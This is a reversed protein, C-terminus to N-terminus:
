PSLDLFSYLKSNPIFKNSEINYTHFYLGLESHTVLATFLDLFLAVENISIGNNSIDSKHFLHYRGFMDMVTVYSEQMSNESCIIIYICPQPGYTIVEGINQDSNFHNLRLRSMFGMKFTEKEYLSTDCFSDRVHIIDCPFLRLILKTFQRIAISKMSNNLRSTFLKWYLLFFDFYEENCPMNSFPFLQFINSLSYNTLVSVISKNCYMSLDNFIKELLSKWNFPTLTKPLLSTVVMNRNPFVRCMSDILNKRTFIRPKGLRGGVTPITIYSEKAKLKPDHVILFEECLKSSINYRSAIAQIISLLIIPHGNTEGCYVRLIMFDELTFREIPQIRTHKRRDDLEDWIYKLLKDIRVTPYLEYFNGINSYELMIRNNICEFFKMRFPLLDDFCSDISALPLLVTEEVIGINVQDQHYKHILDFLRGHRISTLLQKAMYIVELSKTNPNAHKLLKHLKPIVYHQYKNLLKLKKLVVQLDHNNTLSELTNILITDIRHRYRFYYFWDRSTSLEKFDLKEVNILIDDKELIIWNDWCRDIWIINSCITNNLNHCVLRLQFLDHFDLYKCIEIWVEVPIDDGNM